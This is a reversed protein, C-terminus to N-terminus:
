KLKEEAVGVLNELLDRNATSQWESEPKEEFGTIEDANTTHMAYRGKLAGTAVHFLLMDGQVDGADFSKTGLKVVPYAVKRTRIAAVYEWALCEKLYKADEEKPSDIYVTSACIRLVTNGLDLEDKAADRSADALWKEGLIVFTKAELKTAFPRDSAVAPESKAKKALGAIRGLHEKALPLLKKAEDVAPSVTATTAPTVEPPPKKKCALLAGVILAIMLPQVRGTRM